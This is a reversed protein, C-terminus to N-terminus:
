KIKNTLLYNCKQIYESTFSNKVEEYLKHNCYNKSKESQKFKTTDLKLSKFSNQKLYHQIKDSLNLINEYEIIVYKKKPIIQIEDNILKTHYKISEICSTMDKKLKRTYNSFSTDIFNRISVIFFMNVNKNNKFLEYFNIISPTIPPSGYPFSMFECYKYDKNRKIFKEIKKKIKKDNTQFYTKLLRHFKYNEKYNIADKYFHHGTGESGIIWLINFM